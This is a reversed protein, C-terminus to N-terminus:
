ESEKIVHFVLSVEINVRPEGQAVLRTRIVDLPQSNLVTLGAALGGCVFHSIPKLKKKEKDYTSPFISYSFLTL